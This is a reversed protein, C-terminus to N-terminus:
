LMDRDFIFHHSVSGIECSVLAYHAIWYLVEDQLSLIIPRISLTHGMEVFLSDV